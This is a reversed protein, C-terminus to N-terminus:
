TGSARGGDVLLDTGTVFSAEDSILFACCAAVEDARGIRALSSARGYDVSSLGFARQAEQLMPTDISGPSVTNCRVGKAGFDLAISRSLGLLGTKSAVYAASAPRARTGVISAVNVIAGGGQETMQGLTARCWLFPGTLNVALVREWEKTTVTVADKASHMGAVNVLADIRGSRRIVDSITKAAFAEDTIDGVAAIADLEAAVREAETQQDVVTVVAGEAHCRAAVARGMGQAAGTVIVTRGQLRGM